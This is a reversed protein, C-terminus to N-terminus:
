CEEYCECNDYTHLKTAYSGAEYQFASIYLSESTGLYAISTGNFMVVSCTDLTVASTATVEYRYYGSNAATIKTTFGVPTSVATQTNLNFIINQSTGTIGTRIGINRTGNSKAYFSITYVTGILLTIPATPILRHVANIATETVLTTSQGSILTSEGVSTTVEEKSWNSLFGNSQPQL